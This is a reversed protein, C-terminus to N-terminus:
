SASKPTPAIQAQTEAPDIHQIKFGTFGLFLSM